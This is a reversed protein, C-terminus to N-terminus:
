ERWMIGQTALKSGQCLTGHLTTSRTAEWAEGEDEEGTSSRVYATTQAPLIDEYPPERLAILAGRLFTIM